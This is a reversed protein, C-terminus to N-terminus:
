QVFYVEGYASVVVATTGAADLSVHYSYGTAMSSIPVGSLRDVIVLGRGNGTAVYLLDQSASLAVGFAGEEIRRAFRVHGSALDFARLYGDDEAVYLESGDASIASGVARAGAPDATLSRTITRTVLDIEIISTSSSAYLLPQNPHFTLQPVLDPVAIDGLPSLTTANFLRVTPGQGIALTQGDPSVAVATVRDGGPLEPISDIVQNTTTNIVLVQDASDAGVYGRSGDPSLAVGYVAGGTSIRTPFQHSPLRGLFLGNGGIDGILMVGNPAIAVSAPNSGLPLATSDTVVPAPAARVLIRLTDAAPGATAILDAFGLPGIATVTGVPSISAIGPNTSRLHILSDPVPLFASDRAQLLLQLTDGPQLLAAKDADAFSFTVPLIVVSVPVSDVLAGSSVRIWCSGANSGSAAVRGSDSVTAIAPNTSVFSLPAGYVTNGVADLVTAGVVAVSGRNLGLAAPSLSLRVAAQTVDGVADAHADGSKATITFAGLHGGAHLWHSPGITALSTDSVSVTVLPQPALPQHDSGLVTITVQQSDTLPTSIPDPEIRIFEATGAPVTTPHPTAYWQGTVVLPVPGGTAVLRRVNGVLGEPWPQGDLQFGAGGLFLSALSDGSSGLISGAGMSVTVDHGLTHCLGTGYGEYHGSVESGSQEVTIVTSPLRCTIDDASLVGFSIDWKGPIFQTVPDPVAESDTHCALLLAVALVALGVGVPRKM